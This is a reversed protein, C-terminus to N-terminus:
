GQDFGWGEERSAGKRLHGALTSLSGARGFLGATRSSRNERELDVSPSSTSQTPSDSQVTPSPQCKRLLQYLRPSYKTNQKCGKM